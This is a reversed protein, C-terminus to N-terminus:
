KKRGSYLCCNNLCANNHIDLFYVGTREIGETNFTVNYCKTAKDQISKLCHSM